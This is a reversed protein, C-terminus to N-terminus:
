ASIDLLGVVGNAVLYTGLVGCFVVILVRQHERAWVTISELLDRSVRPRYVSVVLATIAVSFWIANYIVVQVLRDLTGTASGVIANLAAVYVLGPLHTLVGALAAGSPSLNQLRRRVRVTRSPPGDARRRPLVGIWAAVAYGLAAVGLLTDLVPREASSETASGIGALLVVVLTGVALSWAMGALIYTALLRQPRPTSLMAVVAAASTPRIVTSLALLLAEGSM